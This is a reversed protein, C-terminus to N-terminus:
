RGDHHSWEMEDYCTTCCYPVNLCEQSAGTNAGTVPTFCYGSKVVGNSCEQSWALCEEDECYIRPGPINRELDNTPPM